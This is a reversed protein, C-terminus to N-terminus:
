SSLHHFNYNTLLTKLSQHTFMSAKKYIILYFLLQFTLLIM